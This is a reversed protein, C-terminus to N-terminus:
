FSDLYLSVMTPLADAKTPPVYQHREELTVRERDILQRLGSQLHLFFQLLSFAYPPAHACAHNEDRAEGRRCLLRSRSM